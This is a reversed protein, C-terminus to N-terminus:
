YSNDLILNAIEGSIIKASKKQIHEGDTYSFLDTKDSYDLYQIGYKKVISSIKTDFDPLVQKDFGILKPDVPLRVLYVNGREKLTVILNEFSKFREKSFCQNKVREIYEKERSKVRNEYGIDGQKLNVELWGDPHVKMSNNMFYRLIIEYYSNIYHSLIYEWHIYISNVKSIKGLFLRNEIYNSENEIDKCDASLSWPDVTIIFIGDKSNPKLKQFIRENYVKGFPSHVITFSFNFIEDEKELGLKQNLVSPVIGQAAKSTGIILSKKQGTILRQYFPDATGNELLFVVTISVSIFGFFILVKFLFKKIM